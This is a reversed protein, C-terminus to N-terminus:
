LPMMAYKICKIFSLSTESQETTLILMELVHFTNDKVQLDHTQVGALGFKPHMTKGGLNPKFWFYYPVHSFWPTGVSIYGCYVVRQIQQIM